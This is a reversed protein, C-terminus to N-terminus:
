FLGPIFKGQSEIGKINELKSFLHNFYGKLVCESAFCDKNLLFCPILM